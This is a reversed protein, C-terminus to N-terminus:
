TDLEMQPTRRPTFVPCHGLNIKHCRNYADERHDPKVFPYESGPINPFKVCQWVRVHKDRTDKTVHDCDSCFTTM